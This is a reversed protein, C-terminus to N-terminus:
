KSGNRQCERIMFVLVNSAAAKSRRNNGLDTFGEIVDLQPNYQLCEDIATADFCLCVTRCRSVCLNAYLLRRIVHIFSNQVYM